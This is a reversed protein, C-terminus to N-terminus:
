SAVAHVIFGLNHAQVRAPHSQEYCACYLADSISGSVELQQELLEAWVFVPKLKHIQRIIKQRLMAGGRPLVRAFPRRADPRKSRAAAPAAGGM